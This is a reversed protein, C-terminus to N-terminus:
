LIAVVRTRGFLIDQMCDVLAGRRHEVPQIRGNEHHPLFHINRHTAYLLKTLSRPPRESM